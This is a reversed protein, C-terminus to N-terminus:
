QVSIVSKLICQVNYLFHRIINYGCFTKFYINTGVTIHDGGYRNRYPEKVNQPRNSVTYKCCWRGWRSGQPNYKLGKPNEREAKCKGIELFLFNERIKAVDWTLNKLAIIRYKECHTTFTM